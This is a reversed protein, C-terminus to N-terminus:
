AARSPSRCSACRPLRRRVDPAGLAAAGRHRVPEDDALAVEPQYVLSLEGRGLADRLEAELELREIARTRVASDFFELRAKGHEKAQYMAADADRLLEEAEVDQGDAVAVGLSASLYRSRGELM